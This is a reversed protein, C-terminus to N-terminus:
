GSKGIASPSYDGWEKQGPLRDIRKNEWEKGGDGGDQSLRFYEERLDVKKRDKAMKLGEEKSVSQVQSNRLEYRTNTLSSLAFSGLVLAGM